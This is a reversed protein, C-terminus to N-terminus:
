SRVGATAIYVILLVYLVTWGNILWHDPDLCRYCNLFYLMSPRAEREQNLEMLTQMLRAVVIQNRAAEGQSELAEQFQDKPMTWGSM